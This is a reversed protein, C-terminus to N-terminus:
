IWMNENTWATSRPPDGLGPAVDGAKHRKPIQVNHPTTEGVTKGELNEVVSAVHSAPMIALTNGKLHNDRTGMDLKRLWRRDDREVAGIAGRWLVVFILTTKM